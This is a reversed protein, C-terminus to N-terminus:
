SPRFLYPRAYGMVQEDVCRVRYRVEGGNSHDDPPSNGDITVINGQEDFRDFLAVHNAVGDPKGTKEERWDFFVIDGPLPNTTFFQNNDKFWTLAAPCSHFGKDTEIQLKVGARNLCFSVFMACWPVGNRGYWEGYKDMNDPEEITGIELKAIELVQAPTTM